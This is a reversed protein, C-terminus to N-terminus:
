KDGKQERAAELAVMRIWTTLPLGKANATQQMQARQEPSVRFTFAFTLNEKEM